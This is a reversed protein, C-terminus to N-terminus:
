AAKAQRAFYAHFADAIRELDQRGLGQHCGIAFGCRNIRAAVPYRPELDGFLTRYIPQNLLPMLHRTEIGATELHLLLGERDVGEKVIVPYMMWAHEAGPRVGPLQLFGSLDALAENLYRANEQRRQLMEGHRALEGVGLAAEMETARYSYGVHVFSFRRAVMQALVSQDTTDDDDISLYISDRGHNMLSKILVALKDDDTTAFGGVGTVVLHAVYTSFCSIDGWSGTPRGKYRVFMTECSDEIVRLGHKLAFAMIPQMECPQGFLHVPMIARTRPTLHRELQAPDIGIHDPEVDVFVPTLGNQIVVNSSAVFTVAPVLVEDGAKWGDREKLAHVAVQLASTGSNCFVAYRRDHLRAFEGEFRRTYEGYSLRNKSLVDNVLQRQLPSIEATGLGIRSPGPPPESQHTGTSGTSATRRWVTALGSETGEVAFGVRSIASAAARRGAGNLSVILRGDASLVRSIEGIAPEVESATTASAWLVLDFSADPFPLRQLSSRVLPRGYRRAWRLKNFRDDVAVADPLTAILPDAGARLVLTRNSGAAAAGTAAMRRRARLRRPLNYSQLSWSEYDASEPANRLHRLRWFTRLYSSVFQLLMVHSRGTFRAKHHLPVEVVQHGDAVVRLLIDELVDFNRGEVAISNIVSQRYLRFGSSMDRFHVGLGFGYIRNLIRSFLKRYIPMDARGGDVYRSAIVLAAREREAWMADLFDPDHQHDGDMTAIYRGRALSFGMRLAGGYGPETQRAVRAGAEAAVQPSGDTSGADVVIVEYSDTLREVATRIRPLLSRLNDAENWALVMVTLEVQPRLVSPSEGAEAAMLDPIGEVLPIPHGNFCRLSHEDVARLTLGCRPCLLDAPLPPAQEFEDSRPATM